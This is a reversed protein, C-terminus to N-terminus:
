KAAACVASINVVGVQSSGNLKGDLEEGVQQYSEQTGQLVGADDAAQAPQSLQVVKDQLQPKAQEAGRPESLAPVVRSKLPLAAFAGAADLRQAHLLGQSMLQQVAAKSNGALSICRALSGASRLQSGGAFPDFLLLPCSSSGPPKLYRCRRNHLM